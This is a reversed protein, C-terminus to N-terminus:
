HHHLAARSEISQLLAAPEAQVEHPFAPSLTGDNSAAVRKAVGAVALNDCRACASEASLTACCPEFAALALPWFVLMEKTM